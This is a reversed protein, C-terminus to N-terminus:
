EFWTLTVTEPGGFSVETGSARTKTYERTGPQEGPRKWVLRYFKRHLELEKQQIDQPNRSTFQQQAM